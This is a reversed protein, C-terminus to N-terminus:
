ADGGTREVVQQPRRAPGVVLLGVEGPVLGRTPLLLVEDALSFVRMRSRHVAVKETLM